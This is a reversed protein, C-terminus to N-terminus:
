WVPGHERLLARMQRSVASRYASRNDAGWRRPNAGRGLLAAAADLRDYSAAVCLAPRAIDAATGTSSMDVDIDSHLQDILDVWGHTAADRLFARWAVETTPRDEPPARFEPREPAAPETETIEVAAAAKAALTAGLESALLQAIGVAPAGTGNSGFGRGGVLIARADEAEEVPLAWTRDHDLLHRVHEPTPRVGAEIITRVVNADNGIIAFKLADFGHWEGGEVTLRPNAGRGLLMQVLAHSGSYCAEHLPTAGRHRTDVNVGELALEALWGLGGECAAHLLGAERPDAGAGVLVESVRHLSRIAAQHLPSREGDRRLVRQNPDAGRELLAEVVRPDDDNTAGSRYLAYFLPTKGDADVLNVVDRTAAAIREVDDYIAARNLGAPAATM